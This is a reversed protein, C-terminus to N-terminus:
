DNDAILDSSLTLRLFWKMRDVCALDQSWLDYHLLAHAMISLVIVGCSSSDSQKPLAFDFDKRTLTLGPLISSIWWMILEFEESPPQPHGNLCDAYSFSRETLDIRLLTWHNTFVHLPLYVVQVAAALLQKDLETRAEYRFCTKRLQQLCSIHLPDLIALEPQSAHYVIYRSGALIMEDDLWETGLFGAVRAGTLNHEPLTGIVKSSPTLSDLREQCDEVLDVAELPLLDGDDLAVKALWRLTSHFTPKSAGPACPSSTLTGGAGGTLSPLSIPSHRRLSTDVNAWHDALGPCALLKPNHTRCHILRLMRDKRM